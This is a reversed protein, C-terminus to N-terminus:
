SNTLYFILTHTCRNHMFPKTYSNYAYIGRLSSAGRLNYLTYTQQTPSSHTATDHSTCIGGQFRVSRRSSEIDSKTERSLIDHRRVIIASLFHTIHLQIM